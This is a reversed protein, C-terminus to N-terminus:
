RLVSPLNSKAVSQHLLSYLIPIMPQDGPLAGSVPRARATSSSTERLNLESTLFERDLPVRPQGSESLLASLTM